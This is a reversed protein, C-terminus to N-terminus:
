PTAGAALIANVKRAVEALVTRPPEQRTLIQVQGADIEKSIEDWRAVYPMPRAISVADLLAQKNFGKAADLYAQMASRRATTSGEEVAQQRQMEPGTYHALWAWAADKEKSEAAISTSPGKATSVRAVKGKPLPAIDWTTNVQQRLTASLFGSDAVHAVIRGTDFHGRLAQPTNDESPPVIRHRHRQDAMWQFAEVAAPEDLLCKKEDRTLIDGGNDRVPLEYPPMSMGLVNPDRAMTQRVVDALRDWTWTADPAGAGVQQFANTNYILFWLGANDPIAHWCGSSAGRGSPTLPRDPPSGSSAGRGSPTLPCPGMARAASAGVFDEPKFTRADRKVYPTLDALAGRARLPEVFQPNLKVMDPTTGAALSIFKEMVPTGGANPIYEVSVQPHQQRFLALAKDWFAGGLAAGQNLYTLAVPRNPVGGPTPEARGTAQGPACAAGLASPSGAAGALRLVFTRRTTVRVRQM